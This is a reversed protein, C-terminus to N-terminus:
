NENESASEPLVADSGSGCIAKTVNGQLRGGANIGCIGGAYDRVGGVWVDADTTSNTITGKNLGCVGGLNMGTGISNVLSFTVHCSDITGENVGAVTGVYNWGRMNCSALTVNRVTGGKAIAGFLGRYGCGAVPKETQLMTIVHGGGDFTGQFATSDTAGIPKWPLQIFNTATLDNDLRINTKARRNNVYDATWYLNGFSKVVYVSDNAGLPEVGPMEYPHLCGKRRCIGHEDYDHGIGPEEFYSDHYCKLCSYRVVTHECDQKTIFREDSYEHHLNKMFGCDDCYIAHYYEDVPINQKGFSKHGADIVYDCILCRKNHNKWDSSYTAFKHQDMVTDGCLTCRKYHYQQIKLTDAETDPLRSWTDNGYLQPFTHAEKVTVGCQDRDCYKEHYEINNLARYKPEHTHWKFVFYRGGGAFGGAYTEDDDLSKPKSATVRASLLLKNKFDKNGTRSVYVHPQGTYAGGYCWYDRGNLGGRYKNDYHRTYEQFYKAPTYLKGDRNFEIGYEDRTEVAVSTIYKATDTGNKFLAFAYDGDRGKRFDLSMDDGGSYGKAQEKVSDPYQVAIVKIETVLGQAMANSPTFLYFLLFTFFHYYKRGM